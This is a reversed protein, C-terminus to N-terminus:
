RLMVSSSVVYVLLTVQAGSLRPEILVGLTGILSVQLFGRRKSQEAGVEVEHM